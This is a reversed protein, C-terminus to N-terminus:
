QHLLAHSQPVYLANMCVAGVGWGWVGCEGYHVHYGLGEKLGQM